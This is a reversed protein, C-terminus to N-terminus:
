ENKQKEKGNEVRLYQKKTLYYEKVDIPEFEGDEGIFVRFMASAEENEIFGCTTMMRRSYENEVRVTSVMKEPFIKEEKGNREKTLGENFAIDIFKKLVRSGFGKNRYQKFIYIEPELTGAEETFGIYGIIDKKIKICYFLPRRLRIYAYNNETEHVGFYIEFEGAAKIEEKFRDELGYGYISTAPIVNIDGVKILSMTM